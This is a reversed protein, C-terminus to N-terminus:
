SGITLIITGAQRKGQQNQMLERGNTVCSLFVSAPLVAAVAASNGLSLQM